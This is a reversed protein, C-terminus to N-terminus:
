ERKSGLLVALEATRLARATLPEPTPRLADLLLAFHRRAAVGGVDGGRDAVMRTSVIIVFLDTVVVDPRVAGASQAAGLLANVSPLVIELLIRHAAASLSRTSALARALSPRAEWRRLFTFLAEGPATGEAADVALADLQQCETEVVAWVLEDKSPFRRYLSGVGVGSRKAIQEMSVSDGYESFLTRAASIIEELRAAAHQGRVGTQTVSM